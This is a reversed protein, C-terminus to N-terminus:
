TQSSLGFLAYTRTSPLTRHFFRYGDVVLAVVASEYGRETLNDIANLISLLSAGTRDQKRVAVTHMVYRTPQATNTWRAWGELNGGLRRVEAVYDPYSFGFGVDDGSRNAIVNIDKVAMLSLLPIAIEAFEEADIDVFGVHGEWVRHLLRFIRSLSGPTDTPDLYILQYSERFWTKGRQIEPQESLQKLVSTNADFSHWTAIPEFGFQGFLTPYYPPNRPEFLFPEYDFGRTMFRHPRHAGGNIPGVIRSAGQNRLWACAARLLSDAVEADNIAEFYGIQGIPHGQSDTWRADVIGAVRGVVESGRTCLFLQRQQYRESPSSGSLERVLSARMPPVWLPDSGNISWALDVFDSLRSADIGFSKM